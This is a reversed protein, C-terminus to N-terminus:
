SGAGLAAAEDATLERHAGARIMRDEYLAYRMQEGVLRATQRALAADAISLAAPKKDKGM